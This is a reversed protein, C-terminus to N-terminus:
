GGGFARTKIEIKLWELLISFTWSATPKMFKDKAKKWITDDRAADLFDHGAWTLRDISVMMDRRGDTPNVLIQGNILGAEIALAANYTIEEQSYGELKPLELAGSELQLLLLRILEMDRKM